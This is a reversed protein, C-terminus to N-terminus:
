FDVRMTAELAHNQRGADGASLSYSMGLNLNKYTSMYGLKLDGVFDGAVAYDINDTTKSGKLTYSSETDGFRGRLTVDAYPQVTFNQFMFSPTKIAVGVPVEYIMAKDENVTFLKKNGLDITYDDLDVTTIRAGIHPTFTMGGFDFNREARIGASLATAKVDASLSQNQITAQTEGNTQIYSFTGIVYTKGYSKAGWKHNTATWEPKAEPQSSNAKKQTWETKFNEIKITGQDFGAERVIKGQDNQKYEAISGLNLSAGSALNVGHMQEGSFTFKVGNNFTNLTLTDKISLASDGTGNKIYDGLHRNNGFVKTIVLENTTVKGKGNLDIQGMDTQAKPDLTITTWDSLGNITMKAGTGSITMTKGSDIAGDNQVFTAGDALTVNGFVVRGVPKPDKQDTKVIYGKDNNTLVGSAGTMKVDGMYIPNPAKETQPNILASDEITVRGASEIKAERNDFTAPKTITLSSSSDLKLTGNNIFSGGETVNLAVGKLEVTEINNKLSGGKNVNLTNTGNNASITLQKADKKGYKTAWEKNWEVASNVDKKITKGATDDADGLTVHITTDAPQQAQPALSTSLFDVM